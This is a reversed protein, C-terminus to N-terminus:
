LEVDSFSGIVQNLFSATEDDVSVLVDNAKLGCREAASQKLVQVIKHSYVHSKGSRTIAHSFIIGLPLTDVDEESYVAAKAKSAPHKTVSGTSFVSSSSSTGRARSSCVMKQVVVEVKGGRRPYIGQDSFEVTMSETCGELVRTALDDYLLRGVDQV